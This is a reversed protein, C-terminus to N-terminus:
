FLRQRRHDGKRGRRGQCLLDTGVQSKWRRRRWARPRTNRSPMMNNGHAYITSTMTKKVGKVYTQYTYTYSETGRLNLCKEVEENLVENAKENSTHKMIAAMGGAIDSRSLYGDLMNGDGATVDDMANAAVSADSDRKGAGDDNYVITSDLTVAKSAYM